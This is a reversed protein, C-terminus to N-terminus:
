RDSCTAHRDVSALPTRPTSPGMSSVVHSLADLEVSMMPRRHSLDELMGDTVVDLPVIDQGEQATHGVDGLTVIASELHGKSTLGLREVGRPPRIDILLHHDVQTPHKPSGDLTPRLVAVELLPTRPIWLLSM